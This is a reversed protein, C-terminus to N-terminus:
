RKVKTKRTLSRLFAAKVREKRDAEKRDAHAQEEPSVYFGALSVTTTAAPTILVDGVAVDRTGPEEIVEVNVTAGVEHPVRLRDVVPTGRQSRTVLRQATTPAKLSM